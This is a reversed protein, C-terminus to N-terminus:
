RFNRVFKSNACGHAPQFIPTEQGPSAAVYVVHRQGVHGVGIHHPRRVGMGPDNGHVLRLGQLRGAHMRHQGAFVRECIADLADV